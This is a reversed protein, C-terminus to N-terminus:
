DDFLRRAHNALELHASGMDVNKLESHNIIQNGGVFLHKVRRDPGMVLGTLSDPIDGLDDGPWIAIDAKQGITFSGLDELGLCRAGGITAMEVVEEPMLADPRMERQRATFLAQRLEPFLGGIENSAVGDVGLGVPCGAELLDTVPCMGAALRANSSPCHAIGTGAGGLRQMEEKDIHIGHALWVDGDVWGWEDLMEVPRRGFKELCYEQEELTECLHTHLRVGHKRALEASDVMLETTVSFPSCPAVVVHVMEGDHHRSIISETSALIAERDEVVHDPPLGGQSEGLDMSGRSLHLRIGVQQAAEVIADFVTDDGNPVLYHHDFATTCGTSALEGIGVLAAAHVDDVSLKGWVPYLHVLWDFLNCGVARGRTMWQYLHHHTNILGPTAIDGACTVVQDSDKPEILGIDAIVGNEIAIDGPYRLGRIVLRNNM